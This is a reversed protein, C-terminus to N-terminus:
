CRGPSGSGRRRSSWRENLPTDRWHRPALVLSLGVALVVLQLTPEVGGTPWDGAAWVGSIVVLAAVATLAATGSSRSIVATLAIVGLIPIVVVPWAVILVGLSIGLGKGGAFGYWINHVNGAVAGLGAVVAGPDAAVWEGLIVTVFGKGVEALLVLSALAPGRTRLANNAGPNGSGESRLDIGWLRGLLGATPLSGILYGALAALVIM